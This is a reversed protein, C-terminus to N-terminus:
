EKNEKANEVFAKIKELDKVGDTEVGSSVDVGIFKPHAKFHAVASQINEPDLGGAVLFPLKINEISKSQWDFQTGTGGGAADLLLTADSYEEAKAFDSIAKFVPKSLQNIYNMDEQGHLQIIDLGAIEVAKEVFEIPENVFVGVKQVHQPTNQTIQAIKEPSVQRRSKSLIFGLHTSGSEVAREVAAQTSLGCIKIKM